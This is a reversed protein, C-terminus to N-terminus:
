LEGHEPVAKEEVIEEVEIKVPQQDTDVKVEEKSEVILSQPLKEKKGEGMKIADIWDEVSKLSYDSGSYHKWWSKKSNTVILEFGDTNLNLEKRLKAAGENDLPATYVPFLRHGGKTHKKIVDTLSALADQAQEPLPEKADTRSPLLALICNHSKTSLCEKQLLEETDLMLLRPGSDTVDVPKDQDPTVAEESTEAEKKTDKKAEKKGKKDTKPKAPAPDPNPSAAQSLFEVMPEKKMEGSYVIAEKDGGPLLVLSPFKDIGLSEVAKKEKNRVQAVQISGLFDIALARLLASTTGKETFLIAKPSGNGENLFDDFDSDTVRKVHNPIKEVVADVIAKASRAGRYDEVTPKGPKKGPRVIKLTPFGEVGMEACLRKNLDDDCNVAAVKALGALNKAAKEYAPKLNQCHGCWPAYFEVISTYNSKAILSNYDKAEVQLVPSNKPYMAALAPSSFFAAVAAAALAKHSVM